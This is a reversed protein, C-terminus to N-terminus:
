IGLSIKLVAFTGAVGVVIAFFTNAVIAIVRAGENEVYDEIIVQMGVRMHITASIIFLLLLISVLPRSVTAAAEAYGKRTLSVVIFVFAIALVINAMATLRQLWFHSTGSRAPGLGRVRALPTRISANPSAM